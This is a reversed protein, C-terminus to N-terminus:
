KGEVGLLNKLSIKLLGEPTRKGEFLNGLLSLRSLLLNESLKRAFRM